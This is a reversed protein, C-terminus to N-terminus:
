DPAARMTKALPRRGSMNHTGEGVRPGGLPVGETRAFVLRRQVPSPPVAPDFDLNEFYKHLTGECVSPPPGPSKHGGVWGGWGRMTSESARAAFTSVMVPRTTPLGWGTRNCRSQYDAPKHGSFGSPVGKKIPTLIPPVSFFAEAVRMSALFVFSVAEALEGM